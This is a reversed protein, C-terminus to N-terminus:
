KLPPEDAAALPPLLAPSVDFAPEEFAPSADLVPAVGLAPAAALLLALVPAFLPALLVTVFAGGGGGRPKSGPM